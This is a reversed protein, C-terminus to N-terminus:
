CPNSRVTPEDPEVQDVTNFGAGAPAAVHGQLLPDGTAVMWRQLRERLDGEPDGYQLAGALNVREQPDAWLDYFEEAPPQGRLLGNQLMWSKTVSADINPLMPHYSLEFNRIYKYRETRIARKPEYGAHYTVEAYIEERVRASPDELIPRLSHGEIWPPIERGAYDCLTPFFDLHSVLADTTKAVPKGGPPRIMLAVGIGSDYLHCKHRPFAIGHDTTFVVLTKELLGSELLGNWVIGFAADMASAAAHFGAMDDRTEANDPIGEPARLQAPDVREPIEPFPRHPFFFGCDLFFPQRPGGRLFRAAAEAVRVDRMPDNVMSASVAPNLVDDYCWKADAPSQVHQIGALLTRYGSTRLVNAVHREPHTLSFGRHHLGLMGSVHASQGTLLAARSPSCSPAACFAQRFTMAERAFQALHPTPVAYGYPSVYRGADHCHIYLINM